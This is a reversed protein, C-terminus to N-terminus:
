WEETESGGLGYRGDDLDNKVQFSAAIEVAVNKLYQDSYDILKGREIQRRLIQYVREQEVNMM